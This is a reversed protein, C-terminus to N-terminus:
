VVKIIDNWDTTYRKSLHNRNMQFPEPDQAALILKDRGWKLNIKDWTKMLRNHKERDITDFLNGQIATKTQIGGLIVGAKKYGFGQRYISKLAKLAAAALELTSDSAVDLTILRSEYQAPLEPRHWNTYIFVTLTHCVGSQARLKTACLTTFRTIHSKLIKLDYVETPFSRSTCIQKKASVADELEICSEGHLERWIRVGVIGMNTKVWSEPIQCFQGATVIGMSQLRRAYRRGIGWIDEIPFTSLVKTIDEPRYMLCCGKLRPYKKCLKSAVKALTKTPAIGISVPIGVGKRIDTTIKEGLLQIQEKTLGSFDIFAEDISYVEVAPCMQKLLTMVRNSMDGYLAYNSSFVRVQHKEILEKSQFYPAGMAIGLAKAENSRAIICGDNNSLVIVPVGELSPNFVRECSAYFNNCDCLGFM